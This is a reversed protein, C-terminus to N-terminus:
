IAGEQKENHRLGAGPGDPLPRATKSNWRYCEKKKRVADKALRSSQRPSCDNLGTSCEGTIKRREGCALPRTFAEPLPSRNARLTRLGSQAM